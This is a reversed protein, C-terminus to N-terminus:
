AGSDEGAERVRIRAEEDAEVRRIREAESTGVIWLPVFALWGIFFALFAWGSADRGRRKAAFGVAVMGLGWVILLVVPVPSM